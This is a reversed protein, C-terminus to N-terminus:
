KSWYQFGLMKASQSEGGAEVDLVQKFPAAAGMGQSALQAKVNNIVDLVANPNVGSFVTNQLGSLVGQGVIGAFDGVSMTPDEEQVVIAEPTAIPIANASGVSTPGGGSPKQGVVVPSVGEEVTLPSVDAVGNISQVNGDWVPGTVPALAGSPNFTQVVTSGPQVFGPQRVSAALAALMSQQAATGQNSSEIGTGSVNVIGM